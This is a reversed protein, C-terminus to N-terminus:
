PQLEAGREAVQQDVLFGVVGGRFENLLLDPFHFSLAVAAFSASISWGNAVLRGGISVEYKSVNLRSLTVKTSTRAVGISHMVGSPIRVRSPASCLSSMMTKAVPKSAIVPGSSRIFM